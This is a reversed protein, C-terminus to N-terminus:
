LQPLPQRACAHLRRRAREEAARAPTVGDREATDLLEGVTQEIALVRARAEEPGAHHLEASVAGVVGGAGVVYDPVWVIGHRYMLEAVDPAALQNNAPGAVAKCRLRAM